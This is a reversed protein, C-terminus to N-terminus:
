RGASWRLLGVAYSVYYGALTGFILLTLPSRVLDTPPGQLSEGALYLSGFRWALRAVLLLSLAIGLHANPTYTPAPGTTDFRTLKLGYRGLAAGLGAGALLAAANLPHPLAGLLLLGFLLPLLVVTLWARPRSLTQRGVLRRVRKVIRWVVLAGVAAWLGATPLQLTTSM